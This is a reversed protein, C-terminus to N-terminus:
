GLEISVEASLDSEAGDSNLAVMAFYYRGASLNEVLHRTLGASTVDISKSYVGPKDGYVIRYGSLNTLTTGDDNVTPPQWSVTVAHNSPAGPMVTISFPALKATLSGDSVSIEIEEYSGAQADTPVGSLRGTAADLSAWSPISSAFFQLDDGDADTASPQFSYGQGATVTTIATGDISPARNAQTPDPSPAPADPISSPADPSAPPPVLAVPPPQLVAGTATEGGGGGCGTLSAGIILLSTLRTLGSAVHIQM